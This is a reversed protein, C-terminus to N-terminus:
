EGDAAALLPLLRQELEDCLVVVEPLERLHQLSRKLTTPILVRHREVGRQAFNEYTGTAKLTRQAAARHYMIRQEGPEDICRSLIEEELEATPFLSDNLLSALDYHRPGLRLDQHDLVALVPYPAVPVLNRAMFDRHCPVPLDAGLHVCLQRLGSRLADSFTQETVIGWPEFLVKWTQELERWLLEADLPPNLRGVKNAPLSRIRELDATAQWFHPILTSWDIARQQYLTKSGVDELVMLGRECDSVMVQPVRVGAASLLQTTDVFNRCSLRIEPPYIAVIVEDDDLEVRLYRRRSVDGPLTTLSKAALGQQNLWSSVEREDINASPASTM